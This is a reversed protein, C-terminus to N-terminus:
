QAGVIDQSSVLNGRFHDPTHFQPMMPLRCLELVQPPADFLGDLEFGASFQLFFVPTQWDSFSQRVLEGGAELASNFQQYDM